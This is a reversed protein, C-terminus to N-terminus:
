KLITNDIQGQQGRLGYVTAYEPPNFPIVGGGRQTGAGFAISVYRMQWLLLYTYKQNDKVTFTNDIRVSKLYQRWKMKIMKGWVIIM